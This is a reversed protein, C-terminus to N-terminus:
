FFAGSALTVSVINQMLVVPRYQSCTLLTLGTLVRM